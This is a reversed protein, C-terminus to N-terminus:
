CPNLARKGYALAYCIMGFAWPVMMEELGWQDTKLILILFIALVPGLASGLKSLQMRLNTWFTRSGTMLSANWISEVQGASLGTGFQRVMMSSFVLWYVTMLKGHFFDASMIMLAAALAGLM